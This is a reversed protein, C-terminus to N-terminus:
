ALVVRDEGATAMVSVLGGAAIRPDIHHAEVGALTLGSQCAIVEVPMALAEEFLQALTPLGAAAHRGDAASRLPGALLSVADEHLFLRTRAGLAAAASALALAARLRAPSPEALIVTLGRM